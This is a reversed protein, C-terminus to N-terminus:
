RYHVAAISTVTGRVTRLDDGDHHEEVADVTAAADTGLV